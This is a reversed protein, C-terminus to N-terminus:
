FTVRQSKIKLLWIPEKTILWNITRQLNEKDRDKTLNDGMHKLDNRLHELQEKFRTEIESLNANFIQPANQQNKSLQLQVTTSLTLSESIKNKIKTIFREWKNKPKPPPPKTQTKQYFLHPAFIKLGQYGQMYTDKNEHIEYYAFNISAIAFKPINLINQVLFSWWWNKISILQRYLEQIEHLQAVNNGEKDILWKGQFHYKHSSANRIKRIKDVDLEIGLIKFSKFIAKPNNLGAEPIRGKSLLYAALKFVGSIEYFLAITKIHELYTKPAENLLKFNTLYTTIHKLNITSDLVLNVIIQPNSDIDIILQNFCSENAKLQTPFSHNLIALAKERKPSLLDAQRLYFLFYEELNGLSITM